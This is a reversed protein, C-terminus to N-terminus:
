VEITTSPVFQHTQHPPQNEPGYGRLLANINNNNNITSRDIRIERIGTEPALAAMMAGEVMAAAGEGMAGVEM